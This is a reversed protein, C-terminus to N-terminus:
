ARERNLEKLRRYAERQKREVDRLTMAVGVSWGFLIGSLFVAIFLCVWGASM